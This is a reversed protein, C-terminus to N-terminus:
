EKQLKISSGDTTKIYYIGSPLASIDITSSNNINGLRKGVINYIGGSIAQSFHVIGSSPNPYVKLTTRSITRVTNTSPARLKTIQMISDTGTGNTILIDGNDLYMIDRYYYYINFPAYSAMIPTGTSIDYELIETQGGWINSITQVNNSWNITDNNGGHLIMIAATNGMTAMGRGNGVLTKTSHTAGPADNAFNVVGAPTTSAFIFEKGTAANLTFGGLTNSKNLTSYMLVNGNADIDLWPQPCTFDEMIKIWEATLDNSLKGYYLDYSYNHSADVTDLQATQGSCSGSFFVEGNDNATLDGIYGIDYLVKTQSIIGSANLKYISLDGSFGSHEGAVYIKTADPSVAFMDGKITDNVWVTQLGANIKVLFHKGAAVTDNGLKITKNAYGLLYLNGAADNETELISTTGTITMSDVLALTATDRREIRINGGIGYSTTSGAKKNIYITWFTGKDAQQLFLKTTSTSPSVDCMLKVSDIATRQALANNITIALLFVLLLRYM